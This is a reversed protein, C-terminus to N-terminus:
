QAPYAGFCLPAAKDRKGCVFRTPRGTGSSSCVLVFAASRQLVGATCAIDDCYLIYYGFCQRAKLRFGHGRRTKKCYLRRLCRYTRLDHIGCLITCDDASRFAFYNGRFTECLNDYESDDQLEYFVEFTQYRVSRCRESADM